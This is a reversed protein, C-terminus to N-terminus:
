LGVSLPSPIVFEGCRLVELVGFFTDSSVLLSVLPHDIVWLPGFFALGLLIAHETVGGVLIADSTTALALQNERVSRAPVHAPSVIPEM